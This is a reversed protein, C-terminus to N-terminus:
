ICNELCWSVCTKVLEEMQIIIVKFQIGCQFFFDRHLTLKM